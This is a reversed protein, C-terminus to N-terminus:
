GLSRVWTERTALLNKVMQAVLSTIPSPIFYSYLILLEWTAWTTFFRGSLALSKPLLCLNSGQTPLIGKLIFHLGVGTNQPKGLPALPSSGGTLAPSMLSEPEIGPDPLDGSSPFPLGSWHEQRSFGMALADEWPIIWPTLFLWVCSFWSLM